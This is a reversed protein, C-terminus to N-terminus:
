LQVMVVKLRIRQALSHDCGGGGRTIVRVLDFMKNISSLQIIPNSKTRYDFM